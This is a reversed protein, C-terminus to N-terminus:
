NLKNKAKILYFKTQTQMQQVYPLSKNPFYYSYWWNPLAKEIDNQLTMTFKHCAELELDCNFMDSFLYHQVSGVWIKNSNGPLFNPRKVLKFETDANGQYEYSNLDESVVCDLRHTCIKPDQIQLKPVPDQFLYKIMVEKHPYKQIFDMVAKKLTKKVLNQADESSTTQHEPIFYLQHTYKMPHTSLMNSLLGIGITGGIDSFSLAPSLVATTTALGAPLLSSDTQVLKLQDAEVEADKFAKFNDVQAFELLNMAFSQNKNYKFDENPSSSLISCGSILSLFALFFVTSLYKM